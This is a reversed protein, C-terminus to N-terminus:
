REGSVAWKVWNKCCKELSEPLIIFIDKRTEYPTLGTPKRTIRDPEPNGYGDLNHSVLNYDLTALGALRYLRSAHGAASFGKLAV